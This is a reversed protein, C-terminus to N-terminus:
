PIKNTSSIQDELHISKHELTLLIGKIITLIPAVLFLIMIMTLTISITATTDPVINQPVIFNMTGGNFVIYVYIIDLIGMVSVIFGELMTKKFISGLVTLAVIILGLAALFSPFAQQVLNVLENVPFTAPLNSGLLNLIALFNFPLYYIFM